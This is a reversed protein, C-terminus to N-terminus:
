FRRCANADSPDRLLHGKPSTVLRREIAFSENSCNVCRCAMTNTVFDVTAHLARIRQHEVVNPYLPVSGDTFHKCDALKFTMARGAEVDIELKSRPMVKQVASLVSQFAEPSGVSETAGSDVIVLGADTAVGFIHCITPLAAAVSQPVHHWHSVCGSCDEKISKVIESPTGDPIPVLRDNLAPREDDGDVIEIEDADLESSQHGNHLCEQINGHLVSM